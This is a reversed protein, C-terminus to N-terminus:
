VFFLEDGPVLDLLTVRFKKFINLKSTGLCHDLNRAFAAVVFIFTFQGNEFLLNARFSILFVALLAVFEAVLALFSLSGQM